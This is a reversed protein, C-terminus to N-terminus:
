RQPTNRKKIIEIVISTFFVLWIIVAVSWMIKLELENFVIVSFCSVFLGILKKYTM